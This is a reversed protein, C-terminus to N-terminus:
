KDETEQRCDQKTNDLGVDFKSTIVLPQPSSGIIVASLINLYGIMAASV